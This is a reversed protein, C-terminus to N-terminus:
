RVLGAQQLIHEQLTFMAQEREENDHDHGIIHLFGHVFLFGIERQLSHGYREAQELAKPVSIIVDGLLPEALLQEPMHFPEADADDDDDMAFSLVDTPEDIGRYTKNLERIAENDVFSLSVIGVEIHEREAALQLLHELQAIWEENLDLESVDSTWDLRVAM